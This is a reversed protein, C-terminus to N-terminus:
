VPAREWKGVIALVSGEIGVDVVGAFDRVQGDVVM